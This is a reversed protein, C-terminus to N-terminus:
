VTSSKKRIVAIFHDNALDIYFRRVLKSDAPLVRFILAKAVNKILIWM